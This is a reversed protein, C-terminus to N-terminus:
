NYPRVTNAKKLSIAEYCFEGENRSVMVFDKFTEDINGIRARVDSIAKGHATAVVQVGCNIAFRIADIDEQNGIEDVIIVRPSMSRVMMVIGLAKPCLDLVDSNVGIDYCAQGKHMAAIEGREDIIGVKREDGLLRAIDRLLTTKGMGPPSIILCNETFCNANVIGEAAGIVERAVRINLGSVYAINSIESNKIIVRGCIGVRHGGSLTLFGNKIEEMFAYISNESMLELTEAIEHQNPIYDLAQKGAGNELVIPQEARLRIEEINALDIGDLANKINQSLYNKVLFILRLM